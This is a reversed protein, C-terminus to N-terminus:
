WPPYAAGDVTYHLVYSAAYIPTAHDRQYKVRYCTTDMWRTLWYTREPRTHFFEEGTAPNVLKFQLSTGLEPYPYWVEGHPNGDSPQTPPGSQVAHDATPDVEHPHRRRAAGARAHHLGQDIKKASKRFLYRHQALHKRHGSPQEEESVKRYIGVEAGVGGPFSAFPGLCRQCWGKWLQIIVDHGGIKTRVVKTLYNPWWMEAFCPLTSCMAKWPRATEIYTYGDQRDIEAVFGM